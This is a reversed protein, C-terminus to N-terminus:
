YINFFRLHSIRYKQSDQAGLTATSNYWVDYWKTSPKILPSTGSSLTLTGLNNPGVGTQTYTVSPIITKKFTDGADNQFVFNHADRTRGNFWIDQGLTAHFSQPQNTVFQKTIGDMVYDSEDYLMWDM